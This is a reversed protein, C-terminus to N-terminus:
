RHYGGDCFVRVGRFVDLLLGSDVTHFGGVIQGFPSVDYAAVPGEFGDFVGFYVTDGQVTANVDSMPMGARFRLAM